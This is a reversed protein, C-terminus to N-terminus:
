KASMPNISVSVSYLQVASLRRIKTQLGAVLCAAELAREQSCVIGSGPGYMDSSWKQMGVNQATELRRELQLYTEMTRLATAAQCCISM